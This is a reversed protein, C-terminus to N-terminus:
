WDNINQRTLSAKVKGNEDLFYEVKAKKATASIIVAEKDIKSYIHVDVSDDILDIVADRVKSFTSKDRKVSEVATNNTHTANDM